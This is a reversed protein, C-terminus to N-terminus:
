FLNVSLRALDRAPLILSVSIMNVTSNNRLLHKTVGFSNRRFLSLM